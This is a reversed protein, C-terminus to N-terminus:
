GEFGYLHEKRIIDFVGKNILPYPCLGNSVMDRIMTSSIDNKRKTLKVGEMNVEENFFPLSAKAKDGDEFEEGRTSMIYKFYPQIDTDFNKWKKIDPIIDAGCIIYLEDDPHNKRILGLLKYSYVPPEFTKEFDNVLVRGPFIEQLPELAADLMQCRIEFPAAKKDKWPNQIAPCVLIRDVLNLNLIDSILSVHNIHVPDFSGLLIGIKM